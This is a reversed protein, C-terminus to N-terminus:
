SGVHDEDELLLADLDAELEAQDEQELFDATLVDVPESNGSAIESESILVEWRDFTQEIDSTTAGNINNIIRMAEAVSERSRMMNRQQNMEGLRSQIKHLTDKVQAELEDHQQLSAVVHELQKKALKRRRMCEIAKNKDQTAVAKARRGWEADAHELEKAKLRLAQGDKQVRALRVRAKAASTQTSKIAAAIIADHNEVKTIAQDVTSSITATFRKFLGM